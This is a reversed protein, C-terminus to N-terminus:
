LGIDQKELKRRVRLMQVCKLMSAGELSCNHPVKVETLRDLNKKNGLFSTLTLKNLSSFIKQENKERLSIM